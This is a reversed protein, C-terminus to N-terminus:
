KKKRFVFWYILFVALVVGLIAVVSPATSSAGPARQVTNSDGEITFAGYVSISLVFFVALLLVVRKEM